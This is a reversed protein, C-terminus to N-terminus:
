ARFGSSKSNLENSRAQHEDVGLSSDVRVFGEPDVRYKTGFILEQRSQNQVFLYFLSGQEDVELSVFDPHEKTLETLLTEAAQVSVSLSRAVDLPTVAGGRHVALAYVAEIRAAREADLGSSRLKKGGFLLFLGIGLSFFVLPFALAYGINAQPILLQLVVAICFALSFGVILVVWGLTKAVTGGVKSPQGALNVARGSFPARPRNCATCYAFLGRYVIPANQRCYPCM